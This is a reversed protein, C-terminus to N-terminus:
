KNNMWAQVQETNWRRPKTGAIPVVNFTKNKLMNYLTRRKVGIYQALQLLTLTPAHENM